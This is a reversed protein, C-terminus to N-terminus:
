KVASMLEMMHVSKILMGQLSPDTFTVPPVGRLARAESIAARLEEFQQAQIRLSSTWNLAPLGAAIRLANVAIRVEELHVGRVKMGRFVIEDTFQLTTALDRVSPISSQGAAGFVAEM